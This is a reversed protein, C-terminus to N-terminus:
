LSFPFLRLRIADDTVYNHKFTDCIELFSAIHSNPDDSPLGHFQISTQIMQLITPKIEFNTAEIRIVSRIGTVQPPAFDRLARTDQKPNENDAMIGSSNQTERTKNRLGRANKEIEPNYPLLPQNKNSRM